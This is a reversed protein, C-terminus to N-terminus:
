GNNLNELKLLNQNKIAAPVAPKDLLVGSKLLAKRFEDANVYGSRSRDQQKLLHRLVTTNGQRQLVIANEAVKGEMARVSEKRDTAVSLWVRACRDEAASFVAAAVGCCTDNAVLVANSETDFSRMCLVPGFIEERWIKSTTPVDVYIHPAIFCGEGFKQQLEPQQEPGHIATMSENKASEISGLIRDYQGQSVVPGM